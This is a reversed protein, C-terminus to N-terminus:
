RQVRDDNELLPHVYFRAASGGQSRTTHTNYHHSHAAFMKPEYRAWNAYRYQAIECVSADSRASPWKGPNLNSLRCATPM